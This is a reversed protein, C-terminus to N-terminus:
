AVISKERTSKESGCIGHMDLHLVVLRNLHTDRDFRLKNM